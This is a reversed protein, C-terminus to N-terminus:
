GEKSLVMKKYQTFFIYFSIQKKSLLENKNFTKTLFLTNIMNWM